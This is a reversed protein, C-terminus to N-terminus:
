ANVSALVKENFKIGYTKAADEIWSNLKGELVAAKANAHWVIDGEGIFYMIHWGYDTAVAEVDGEKRAEDFLWDNFEAVMEGTQVNEYVVNSDETYKEGLAKFADLTKEGANYEAIIEDAKKKAKESAAKEQNTDTADYGCTAASVLIHAVDRTKDENKHAVATVLVATYVSEDDGIEDIVTADDAKRASDFLWKELKGTDEAAPDAYAVGKTEISDFGSDTLMAKKVATFVTKLTDSYAETGFDPEKVDEKEEMTDKVFALIKAKAETKQTDSPKKDDAINKVADDFAKTFAEDFKADNTGLIYAAVAAKFEKETKAAAILKAADSAATKETEYAQKEADTAELGASTIKATVDFQLTDATLYNAKNEDVEKTIDDETVAAKLEDSKRTYFKNALVSLELAKRVDKESVGSGYVASIYGRTSYGSSKASEALSDIQADVNAKDESDLAINAAKAGEALALYQNIMQKTSDMFYDYWTQTDSFAQAKLSKSTDLGFYSAYSGYQNLFMSYQTYFYYSLMTGSVKYNKSQAAVKSRAVFGTDVAVMALICAAILLVVLVVVLATVKKTKKESKKKEAGNAAFVVDVARQTRSRNGKGM